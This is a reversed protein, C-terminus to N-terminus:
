KFKMLGFSVGSTVYFGEIPRQGFELRFISNGFFGFKRGFNQEKTFAKGVIVGGVRWGITEEITKAPTNNLELDISTPIIMIDAFPRIYRGAAFEYGESDEVQLYSEWNYGAGVYVGAHFINTKDFYTTGQDYELASNRLYLGGRVVFERTVDGPLQVASWTQIEENNAYDKEYSFSLLVPVTQQKTKQSIAFEVGPSFLFAPGDKALSVLSYLALAEVNLRDSIPYMADAGVSWISAGSTNKFGADVTFYNLGLYGNHIEDPNSYSTSYTTQANATQAVLMVFLVVFSTLLSRNM